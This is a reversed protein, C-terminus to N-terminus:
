SFRLLIEPDIPIKNRLRDAYDKTCINTLLHGSLQPVTSMFHIDETDIISSVINYFNHMHSPHHKMLENYAIKVGEHLRKPWAYFTDGVWKERDWYGDGEPSTFNFKNYDINFDKLHKTFHVDFRSMIYFDLDEGDLMDVALKRTTNQAGGEFPISTLRKPNLLKTVEDMRDNDYTVVYNYVSHEERLPQILNRDINPFCHNFDRDSKHGFSIGAFILAINM